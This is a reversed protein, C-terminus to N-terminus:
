LIREILQNWREEVIAQGFSEGHRFTDKTIKALIQKPQKLHVAPYGCRM